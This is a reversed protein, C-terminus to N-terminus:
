VIKILEPNKFKVFVKFLLFSDIILEVFTRLIPFCLNQNKKRNKGLTLMNQYLICKFKFVPVEM